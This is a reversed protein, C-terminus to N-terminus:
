RVPRMRSRAELWRRIDGLASMLFVGALAVDLIVLIQVRLPQWAFWNTCHVEVMRTGSEVMQTAPMTKNGGLYEVCPGRQGLFWLRIGSALLLTLLFSYLTVRSIM